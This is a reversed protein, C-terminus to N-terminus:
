SAGSFARTTETTSVQSVVQPTDLNKGLAKAEVFLAPQDRVFLAYDLCAGGYVNYERRVHDPDSPRWGLGELIPDILFARTDAENILRGSDLLRAATATTSAVVDALM